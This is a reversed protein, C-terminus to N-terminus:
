RRPDAEHEKMASSNKVRTRWVDYPNWGSHAQTLQGLVFEEEAFDENAALSERPDAPLGEASTGQM